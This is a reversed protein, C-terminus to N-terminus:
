RFALFLVARRRQLETVDHLLVGAGLLGGHVM